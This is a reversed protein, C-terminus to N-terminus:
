HAVVVKQSSTGKNTTVQLTYVGNAFDVLSLTDKYAVVKGNISKNFVVKGNLDILSVSVNSAEQTKVDWSIQDNAPNPYVEMKMAPSNIDAVGVGLDFNLNIAATLDSLYWTLVGNADPVNVLTSNDNDGAVGYFL